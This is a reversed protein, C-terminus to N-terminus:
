FTRLPINPKATKDGDIDLEENDLESPTAQLSAAGCPFLREPGSPAAPGAYITSIGFPAPPTAVLM